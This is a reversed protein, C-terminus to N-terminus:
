FDKVDEGEVAVDEKVKLCLIFEGLDDECM